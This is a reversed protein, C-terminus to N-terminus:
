IFYRWKFGACHNRHYTCCAGINAAYYPIEYEPIKYEPYNM